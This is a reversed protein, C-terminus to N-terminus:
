LNYLTLHSLFNTKFPSIPNPLLRVHVPKIYSPTDLLKPVPRTSHCSCITCRQAAIKHTLRTRVAAMVTQTAERRTNATTTRCKTISETRSSKSLGRVTRIHQQLPLRFARYDETHRNPLMASIQFLNGRTCDRQV